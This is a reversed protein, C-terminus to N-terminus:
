ASLLAYFRGLLDAGNSTDKIINKLPYIILDKKTRVAALKEGGLQKLQEANAAIRLDSRPTKVYIDANHELRIFFKMILQSWGRNTLVAFREGDVQTGKWVKRCKPCVLHGYGQNLGGIIGNCPPLKFKEAPCEYVKEDGGGHLKSGSEWLSIAAPFPRVKSRRYSCFLEIKYKAIQQQALLKDMAAMKKKLADQDEESLVPANEIPNDEGWKIENSVDAPM